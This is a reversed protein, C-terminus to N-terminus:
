DDTLILTWIYLFVYQVCFPLLLAMGKLRFCLMQDFGKVALIDSHDKLATQWKKRSGHAAAHILNWAWISVDTSLLFSFNAAMAPKQPCEYRDWTM